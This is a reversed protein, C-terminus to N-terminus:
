GIVNVENGVRIEGDEIIRARLGGRNRFFKLVERRTRKAFLSCPECLELDECM